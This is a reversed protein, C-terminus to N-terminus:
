TNKNKVIKDTMYNITMQDFYTLFTKRNRQEDIAIVVIKILMVPSKIM